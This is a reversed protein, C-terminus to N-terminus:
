GSTRRAIWRGIYAAALCPLSLVAFAILGLPFLNPGGDKLVASVLSWVAQAGMMWAVWRWPAEDWALGLAFAAILLLPYGFQWYLPDDWAERRNGLFCVLEWSAVGLLVAISAPVIQLRASVM